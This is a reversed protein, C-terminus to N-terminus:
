RRKRFKADPDGSGGGDRRPGRDRDRDGGRGGGDRRPGRDRGGGGRRGGGDDGGGTSAPPVGDENGELTPLDQKVGIATLNLRGMADLEFTKVNLTDGMNVVEEIRGIPKLTIHEKPVFGQKGNSLEVLVGRGMIRTVVGTFETGMEVDGVADKVMAIAVRAQEGGSSGILVRGDQQVDISAGSEATIKKITAGGPGILAGIKEPNIQITTVQPATDAVTSRPESIEAEIVDLIELRADLAQNLARALVDDPIGDLKTDLQLATIGARTGAVKFDMDGCFDEMGIIDTLVKFVKGDSMLGMAIGAVPAKIKIGADMLALTSGCVSAMSTSGNSELVESILLLTYPFNPDDLPIVSRLAREALAGHGVERRGPGRMPRCEGVSYAPFNYFHMYRKPEEEEIGDMTQADGPLGLTAVTMVQTQGRTFLGSGHVRPLIGAIAELPRIQTLSRGDPRKDKSIILERVVGKVVGDAAESLQGLIEPKDAYEPKLKEVIEKILDNLASERVAKDKSGLLAKEIDKGYKKSINKKLDEDIVFLKVDRKPKNVLKAFEEFKEAIAQIAEHGFKLAAAMDEESVESAGAEVMSIAGKHGAVILDLDSAKIQANTPFLIMEGDIRGVRVCAIPAKFPLDSVAIAAGAACVALVDPPCDQEVAFPMAIVQVDNRLGKPFLPRIPRDMLRSVLVAKESPRGGRKMFGGPIKGVAYKREEYDCTLPLFDIGDRPNESMTAVGLVITEGMGLLVAGGAQKAVRGTELYFEKGGVEFELTQIM